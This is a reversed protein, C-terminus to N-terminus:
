MEEAKHDQEQYPQRMIQHLEEHLASIQNHMDKLRQATEVHNQQVRQFIAKQTEAVKARQEQYAKMRAEYQQRRSQMEREYAQRRQQLMENHEKAQAQARQMAQEYNMARQQQSATNVAQMRVRNFPAQKNQTTVAVPATAPQAAVAPIEATKDTQTGTNVVSDDIAVTSTEEAKAQTTHEAPNRTSVADNEKVEAVITNEKASDDSAVLEEVAAETNELKETGATVLESYEDEYFTAVIVIASVLLLVLPIVINSKSSEAAPSDTKINKKLYPATNTDEAKDQTENESNSM